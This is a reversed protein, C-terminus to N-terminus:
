GTSGTAGAPGASGGPGAPGAAGTPGALNQPDQSGPLGPPGPQNWTLLTESNTCTDLASDIIRLSGGSKSFCGSIVGDPDPITALTLSTGLLIVLTPTISVRLKYMDNM